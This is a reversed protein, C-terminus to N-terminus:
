LVPPRHYVMGKTVGTTPLHLKELLNAVKRQSPLHLFWRFDANTASPSYLLFYDFVGQIFADASKTQCLPCHWVGNRYEMPFDHSKPCEVGTILEDKSLKYYQLIDTILPTHSQVLLQGLDHITENNVHQRKYKQELELIKLALNDPKCVYQQVEHYSPDSTIITSPNSM